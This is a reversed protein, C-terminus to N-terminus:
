NKKCQSTTCPMNGSTMATEPSECTPQRLGTSVMAIQKTPGPKVAAFAFTSDQTSPGQSINHRALLTVKVTEPEKLVDRKAVACKALLATDNADIDGVEEIDGDSDNKGQILPMDVLQTEPAAFQSDPELVTSGLLEQDEGASDYHVENRLQSKRRLKPPKEEQSAAEVM